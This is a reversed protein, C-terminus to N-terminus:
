FVAYSIENHRTPESIHILSLVCVRARVFARMCVRVCARMIYYFCLYGQLYNDHVCIYICVSMYIQKAIFDREVGASLGTYHVSVYTDQTIGSRIFVESRINVGYVINRGVDIQILRGACLDTDTQM